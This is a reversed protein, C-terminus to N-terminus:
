VGSPGILTSVIRAIQQWMEAYDVQGNDILTAAVALAVAEAGKGYSAVLWQALYSVRVPKERYRM